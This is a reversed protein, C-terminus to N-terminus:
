HPAPTSTQTSETRDVTQAGDSQVQTTETSSRSVEGGGQPRDTSRTTTTSTHTPGGCGLVGMGAIALTSLLLFLKSSMSM